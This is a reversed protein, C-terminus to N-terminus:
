FSLRIGNVYSLNKGWRGISKEGAATMLLREVGFGLGVWSDTVGWAIDLPHPGTAGSAVEINEDGAFVDITTGYVTSEETDFHYDALGATTAVLSALEKLRGEREELPTGVEVLNLMTFESNHKAGDSEKRFCPGIEFFRIPRHELRSFGKMLTYLNPALMPRLCQKDNIWYVQQILPHDDDVTMKVLASKSILIPTTVRTFGEKCLAVTLKETLSELGVRGGESLFTTLQEKKKRVLKKELQQFIKNREQTNAFTSSIDTLSSGLEELRKQQTETWTITVM